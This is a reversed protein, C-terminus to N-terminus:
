NRSTMSHSVRARPTNPDRIMKWLKSKIDYAWLDAYKGTAIGGMLYVSYNHFVATSKYRMPPYSQTKINALEEWEM